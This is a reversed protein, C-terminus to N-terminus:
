VEPAVTRGTARGTSTECRAWAPSRVRSRLTKKVADAGKAENPVGDPLLKLAKSAAKVLDGPDLTAHKEGLDAPITKCTTEVM